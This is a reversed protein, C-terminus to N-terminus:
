VKNVVLVCRTKNGSSAQLVTNSVASRLVSIHLHPWLNETKYATYIYLCSCKCVKPPFPLKDNKLEFM